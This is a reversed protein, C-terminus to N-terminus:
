LETRSNVSDHLSQHCLPCYGNLRFHHFTPYEDCLSIAAGSDGGCDPAHGQKVSDQLAPTPVDKEVM